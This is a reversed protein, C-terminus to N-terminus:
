RKYEENLIRWIKISTKYPINAKSSLEQPSANIIARITKFNKLLREAYKEGIYPISFIINLQQQYTNNPIRKQKILHINEIKYYKGHKFIIELINVSEEIDNSYIIKFNYSLALSLLVGYISNRNKIYEIEKNLNGEILLIARNTYSTIKNAQQFIRRDFVSAIFDKSTKREIILDGIIYDEIELNEFLIPTGKDKL